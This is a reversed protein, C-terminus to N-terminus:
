DVWSMSESQPYIAISVYVGNKCPKLYSNYSLYPYKYYVNYIHWPM